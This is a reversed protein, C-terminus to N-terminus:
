KPKREEKTAPTMIRTVTMELFQGPKLNLLGAVNKGLGLYWYRRNEHVKLILHAIVHPEEQM